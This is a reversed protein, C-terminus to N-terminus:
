KQQNFLAHWSSSRSGSREQFTFVQAIWAHPLSDRLPLLKPWTSKRDNNIDCTQKGHHRILARWSWQVHQLQKFNHWCFSFWTKSLIIIGKHNGWFFCSWKWQDAKRRRIKVASASCFQLNWVFSFCNYDKKKNSLFFFFNSRVLKGTEKFLASSQSFEPNAVLCLRKCIANSFFTLQYILPWYKGSNQLHSDNFAHISFDESRSPYEPSCLQKMSCELVWQYDLM